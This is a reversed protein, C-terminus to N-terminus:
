YTSHLKILENAQETIKILSLDILRSMQILTLPEDDSLWIRILEALEITEDTTM